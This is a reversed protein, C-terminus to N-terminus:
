SCDKRMSLASPQRKYVDLHTYSVPSFTLWLGTGVLLIMLPWGWVYGAVVNLFDLM